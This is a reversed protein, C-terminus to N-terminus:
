LLADHGSGTAAGAFASTTTVSGMDQEGPVASNIHPSTAPGKQGVQKDVATSSGVVHVVGDFQGVVDVRSTQAGHRQPQDGRLQDPAGPVRHRSARFPVAADNSGPSQDITDTGKLPKTCM